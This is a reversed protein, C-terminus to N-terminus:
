GNYPKVCWPGGGWAAPMYGGFTACRGNWLDPHMGVCNKWKTCFWDPCKECGPNPPGDYNEIIKCKECGPNPPGDYNEIIKCRNNM